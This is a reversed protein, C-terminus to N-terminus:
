ECVNLKKVDNIMQIGYRDWEEKSMKKSRSISECLQNAMMDMDIPHAMISNGNGVMLYKSDRSFSISKGFTLGGELIRPKEEFNIMDRLYVRGDISLSALFRGDDSFKIDEVIGKHGYFKKAFAGPHNINLIDIEGHSYGVALWKGDKSIAIETGKGFFRNNKKFVSAEKAGNWMMIDGNELIGYLTGEPSIALANADRKNEAFLTSEYTDLNCAFIKNDQGSTYLTKQDPSIALSLIKGTHGEFHYEKPSQTAFYFTNFNENGVAIWEEDPTVLVETNFFETKVFVTKRRLTSWKKHEVGIVGKNPDWKFSKVSGDDTAAYVYEETVTLGTINERSGLVKLNYSDGKLGKLAEYLSGYIEPEYEYGQYDKHIERAHMAVLAQLDPDDIERSRNAMYRVLSSVEAVQKVKKANDEAEQAKQDAREKSAKAEIAALKAQKAQAVAYKKEVEAVKRLSDTRITELELLKTKKAEALRADEAEKRKENAEDRRKNALDRQYDARRKEDTAKKEALRAVSAAEEAKEAAAIAKKRELRAYILLGLSALLFIILLILLRRQKRASKREMIVKLEEERKERKIREVEMKRQEEAQQLAIFAEYSATIFLHHRETPGPKKEETLATDLWDRAQELEKGRLLLDESKGKAIWDQSRQSWRTHEQVYERDTDLMFVLKGFTTEFDKGVFNLWQVKSLDEPVTQEDTTRCIVPVLRKGHEAAYVVERECFESGVSDPSIIFLFNDSSDIGKFIEKEFDSGDAISEQDFWTTKGYVQLKNNLRRAFDGDKRSYSIFVETKLQGVKSKSAEIFEIHLATPPNSKRTLGNKLWSEAEELNFGRLLISDNKDLKEWKLASVLFQKHKQFYDHEEHIRNLLATEANKFGPGKGKKLANSFDIYQIQRIGLPIDAEPTEEVMVPVIYKNLEKARQFERLCYESVISRPSILFLYNDAQEVGQAIADEYTTGAKIDYFDVWTTIGKRILIRNIAERYISDSTDYTIFVDTMMNEANKRAECIYECHLESPLCPVKENFTREFWEVAVQREKGVPLFQSSKHHTKWKLAELLLDTHMQVYEKEKSLQSILTKVGADFDDIAKWEEIPADPNEEEKMQLWNLEAIVPHLDEENRIIHAIPIIRKSHTVAKTVEKGCFPSQIAHPSIIYIFNDSTDIANDIRDQFVEAVEIDELDLWVEFGAAELQERLRIAFAKSEKRGYSIFVDHREVQLAGEQTM